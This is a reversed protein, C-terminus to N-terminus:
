ALTMLIIVAVSYVFIWFSSFSCMRSDAAFRTAMSSFRGVGTSEGQSYVAADGKFPTRSEKCTCLPSEHVSDARTLM